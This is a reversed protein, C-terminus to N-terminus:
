QDAIKSYPGGSGAARYVNFGTAGAETDWTLRVSRNGSIGTLNANMWDKSWKMEDNMLRPKDMTLTYSANKLDQSSM